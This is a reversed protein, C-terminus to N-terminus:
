SDGEVVANFYKTYGEPRSYWLSHCVDPCVYYVCDHVPESLM